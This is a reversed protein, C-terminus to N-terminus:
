AMVSAPSGPAERATKGFRLNFLPPDARMLSQRARSIHEIKFQMRAVREGPALLPKIVENVVKLYAPHTSFAMYAAQDAFDATIAYDMNSGNVAIGMDSGFHFAGLEAILRPLTALAEGIIKVTEPTRCKFAILHRLPRSPAAPSLPRCEPAMDEARVAVAALFSQSMRRAPSTTGASQRRRSAALRCGQRGGGM